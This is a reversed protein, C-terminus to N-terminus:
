IQHQLATKKECTAMQLIKQNLFHKRLHAFCTCFGLGRCTVPLQASSELVLVSPCVLLCSLSLSALADRNEVGVERRQCM